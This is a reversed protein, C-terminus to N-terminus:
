ERTIRKLLNLGKHMIKGFFRNKDFLTEFYTIDTSSVTKLILNILIFLILFVGVSLFDFNSFLLLGLNQIIKFSADKLIMEELILTIGLPVFFTLYQFVIKKVNLKIDAIKYTAIIQIILSIINGMILGLIIAGEVGFYILGIFFLPISYSMYIVKLLLTIKSKNQSGLLTQVYADLFKFISALVLLRLFNGYILRSPLFVFDIVFDVCFFLVGSIILLLFLTIKNAIKYIISVKEIEEKTNLSSFSTLLPFNFSNVTYAAIDKYNWAINYGTVAGESEFIGIGQFQAEKWFRDILNSYGLYSGYKFTKQFDEKFSGGKDGITKIKSYVILVFGLNLFFPVTVSILNFIAILEIEINIQLIFFYLLPIIYLFERIMIFIFIYKYQNLGRNIANLSFQLSNFIILPSLIYFLSIKEKLNIAFIDGFFHFILISIIFIPLLFMLKALIGNKILSKIKAKKNLALYRPIYYNLAYNSGPPLFNTILVIITVYSLALILFDWSEDTILRALLFSYLLTFFHSGYNMLFSYFTNTALNRYELKNGLQNKESNEKEM